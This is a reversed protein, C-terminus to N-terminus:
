LTLHGSEVVFGRVHVDKLVPGEDDGVEAVRVAAEVLAEDGVAEAAPRLKISRWKPRIIKRCVQTWSSQAFKYGLFESSNKDM